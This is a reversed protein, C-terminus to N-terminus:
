CRVAGQRCTLRPRHQSESVEGRGLHLEVRVRGGAAGWVTGMVSSSSRGVLCTIAFPPPPTLNGNLTLMEAGSIFTMM